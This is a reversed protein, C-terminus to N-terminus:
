SPFRTHIDALSRSYQDVLNLKSAECVFVHSVVVDRGTFSGVWAIGAKTHRGMVVKDKVQVAMESLLARNFFRSEDVEVDEEEDWDDEDEYQSEPNFVSEDDYLDARHSQHIQLKREVWASPPQSQDNWSPSLEITSRNVSSNSPQLSSRTSPQRRPHPEPFAVSEFSQREANYTTSGHPSDPLGNAKPMTPTSDRGTSPGAHRVHPVVNSDHYLNPQELNRYAPDAREKTSWNAQTPTERGSSYEERDFGNTVEEQTPVPREQYDRNIDMEPRVAHLPTYTVENMPRSPPLPRSNEPKSVNYSLHSQEPPPPPANANPVPPLARRSRSQPVETGLIAPPTPLARRSSHHNDAPLPLPRRPQSAPLGYEAGTM